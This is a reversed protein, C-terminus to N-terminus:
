SGSRGRCVATTLILPLPFPISVCRKTPGSSRSSSANKSAVKSRTSRHSRSKPTRRTSSPRSSPCKLTTLPCSRSRRQRFTRKSSRKLPNTLPSIIRPESLLRVLSNVYDVVLAAENENSKSESGLSSEDSSQKREYMAAGAAVHFTKNAMAKWLSPVAVPGSDIFVVPEDLDEDPDVGPLDSLVRSKVSDAAILEGDYLAESPFSM